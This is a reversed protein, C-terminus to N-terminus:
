LKSDQPVLKEHLEATLTEVRHILKRTLETLETNRQLLELLQGANKAAIEQWQENAIALAERYQADDEASCLTVRQKDRTQAFGSSRRQM